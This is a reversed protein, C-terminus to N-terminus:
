GPDRWSHQPRYGLMREAKASSLLSQHNQLESRIPVEPFFRAMLEASPLGFANDAAAIIFAEHGPPAVELALRCAEGCDRADVYAWLNLRRMEPRDQMAKLLAYDAEAHVHSFRLSVISADPTWRCFAEAMVEGLQKSLSYSWEPRSVSEDMPAFPPPEDHPLGLLTESSAWAIRKIGLRRCASFVNYTSFTNNEFVRHDPALGPAPIGALHLVAEFAGGALDVGSLAGMAQGFDSVDAIVTRAGDPSPKLDFNVALHGAAELSRIAERGVKGSGGTVAVRM